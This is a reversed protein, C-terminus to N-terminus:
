SNTKGYKLFNQMNIAKRFNSTHTTHTHVAVPSEANKVMDM